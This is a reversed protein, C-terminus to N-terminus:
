HGPDPGTGSRYGGPSHGTAARFARYFGSESDFGCAAAIAGVPRSRDQMLLQKAREIRMRRLRTAVGEHGVLRYLTSRSVGCGAAISGANLAPDDLHRRLFSDVRERLLADHADPTSGTGPLCAGAALLGLAHPLLTAAASPSNRATDTLSVFFTSIVAGPDGRGLRRATLVRTDTLALEPKPVMVVLQRFPDDFHLVYPRTSDYFAMDGPGLLATRGDQEVRGRGALQISALLFEGEGAAVLSRTRRVHQSGATVTSLELPGVPLHEIRGRFGHEDIPEAALRVFAACIVERWYAFAEDDAVTSTSLEAYSRHDLVARM